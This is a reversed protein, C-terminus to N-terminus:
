CMGQRPNPGDQFNVALVQLAQLAQLLTTDAHCLDVPVRQFPESRQRIFGTSGVKSLQRAIM